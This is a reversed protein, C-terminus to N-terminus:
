NLKKCYLDSLKEFPAKESHEKGKARAFLSSASSLLNIGALTCATAIASKATVSLGIAIPLGAGGTAMTIVPTISICVVGVLILMAIGVKKTTTLKSKTFPKIHEQYTHLHQPNDLLETTSKLVNTAQTITIDSKKTKYAQDVAILVRNAARAKEQSLNDERANLIKIKNELKAYYLKYNYQYWDDIENQTSYYGEIAPLLDTFVKSVKNIKKRKPLLLSQIPVIYNTRLCKPNPISIQKGYGAIADAFKGANVKDSFDENHLAIYLKKGLAQMKEKDAIWKEFDYLKEFPAAFFEVNKHLFIAARNVRLTYETTLEYYNKPM